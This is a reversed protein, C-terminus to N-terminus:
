ETSINQYSMPISLFQKIKERLVVYPTEAIWDGEFMWTPVNWVGAEHAPDDYEIVRDSYTGTELAFKLESFDLGAKEACEELVQWDAINKSEEWYAFYVADHWAEEKGAEFAFEAGELARRSISYKRLVPACKGEGSTM